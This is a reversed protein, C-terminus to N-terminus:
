PRGDMLSRMRSAVGPARRELFFGLAELEEDSVPWDGPVCQLVDALESRTMAELREALHQIETPDLDGYPGALLHPEDVHAM